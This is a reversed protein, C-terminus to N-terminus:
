KALRAKVRRQLSEIFLDLTLDKRAELAYPIFDTVTALYGIRWDLGHEEVIRALDDPSTFDKELYPTLLSCMSTM